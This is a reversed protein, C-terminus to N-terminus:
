APELEVRPQGKAGRYARFRLGSIPGQAAAEAVGTIFRDRTGNHYLRFTVPQDGLMADFQVYPGNQEDVGYQGSRIVIPTSADAHIVKDDATLQVAPAEVAGQTLLDHIDRVTGDTM